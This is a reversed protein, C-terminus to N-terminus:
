AVVTGPPAFEALHNCVASATFNVSDFLAMRKQTWSYIAFWTATSSGVADCLQKGRFWAGGDWGTSPRWGYLYYWADTAWFFQDAGLPNM